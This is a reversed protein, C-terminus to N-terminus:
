TASYVGALTARHACYIPKCIATTTITPVTVNVITFYVQVHRPTEPNSLKPPPYNGFLSCQRSGVQSPSHITLVMGRGMGRGSVRDMTTVQLDAELPNANANM